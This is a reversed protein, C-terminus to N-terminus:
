VIFCYESMYSFEVKNGLSSSTHTPLTAREFVLTSSSVEQYGRLPICLENRMQKLSLPELMAISKATALPFFIVVM